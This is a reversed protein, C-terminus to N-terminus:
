AKEEPTCERVAQAPTDPLLGMAPPCKMVRKGLDYPRSVASVMTVKVGIGILTAVSAGRAGRGAWACSSPGALRRRLTSACSLPDTPKSQPPIIPSPREAPVVGVVRGM